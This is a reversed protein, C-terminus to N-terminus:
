VNYACAITKSHMLTMYQAWLQDYEIRNNEYADVMNDATKTQWFDRFSPYGDITGAIKEYEEYAFVQAQNFADELDDALITDTFRNIGEVGYVIDFWM